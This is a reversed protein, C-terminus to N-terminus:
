EGGQLGALKLAEKGSISKPKGNSDAIIVNEGLKAKREFLLRQAKHIGATIRDSLEIKEKDSM